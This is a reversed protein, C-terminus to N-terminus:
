SIARSLRTAAIASNRFGTCVAAVASYTVHYSKARTNTTTHKLLYEQALAPNTCPLNLYTKCLRGVSYYVRNVRESLIQGSVSLIQESACVYVLYMSLMCSHMVYVLYRSLMHWSNPQQSPMRETNWM